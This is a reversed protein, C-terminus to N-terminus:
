RDPHRAPIIWQAPKWCAPNAPKPVSTTKQSLMCRFELYRDGSAALAVVFAEAVHRGCISVEAPMFGDNGLALADFLHGDFIPAQLM